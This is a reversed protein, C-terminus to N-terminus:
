AVYKEALKVEVIGGVGTTYEAREEGELRPVVMGPLYRVTGNLNRQIIRRSARAGVGHGAEKTSFRVGQNLKAAVAPGLPASQYLRLRTWGDATKCQTLHVFGDASQEAANDALNVLALELLRKDTLVTFSEDPCEYGLMMRSYKPRVLNVVRQLIPAYPVTKIEVATGGAMIEEARSLIADYSEVDGKYRHVALAVNEPLADFSLVFALGSATLLTSDKDFASLPLSKRFMDHARVVTTLYEIERALMVQVVNKIDHARGYGVELAETSRGVTTELAAAAEAVDAKAVAEALQAELRGQEATLTRESQVDLLEASRLMRLEDAGAKTLSHRNLYNGTVLYIREMLRGFWSMEPRNWQYRYLHRGEGPLFQCHRSVEYRVEGKKGFKETFLDRKEEERRPEFPSVLATITLDELTAYFAEVGATLAGLTFLDGLPHVEEPHTYQVELDVYNDGGGAVRVNLFTNFKKTVQEVAQRGGQGLTTKFATYPNSGMLLVLNKVLDFGPQNQIRRGMDYVNMEEGTARVLNELIRRQDSLPMWSDPNGVFHQYARQADEDLVVALNRPVLAAGPLGERIPVGKFVASILSPDVVSLLHLVSATGKYSFLSDTGTTAVIHELEGSM